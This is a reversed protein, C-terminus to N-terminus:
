ALMADAQPLLKAELDLECRVQGPFAPHTLRITGREIEICNFHQRAAHFDKALDLTVEALPDDGLLNDDWVRLQLKPDQCPAMLPMIFRWNFTGKGDSADYHTDTKCILEQGNDLVHKATVYIDLQEGDKIM